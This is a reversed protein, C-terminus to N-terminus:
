VYECEKAEYQLAEDNWEVKFPKACGFVLGADVLRECEEKTAHPNIQRGTTRMVGHRFIRCNLKEVIITGRCHPCELFLPPKM